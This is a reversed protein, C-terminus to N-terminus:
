NLWIELSKIWVTALWYMSVFFFNSIFHFSSAWKIVLNLNSWIGDWFQRCFSNKYESYTKQSSKSELVTMKFIPWYNPVTLFSLFYVSIYVSSYFQDICTYCFLIRKCLPFTVVQISTWLINKFLHNSSMIKKAM